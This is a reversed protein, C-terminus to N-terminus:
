TIYSMILKVVFCEYKDYCTCREKSFNIGEYVNLSNKYQIEDEYKLEFMMIM